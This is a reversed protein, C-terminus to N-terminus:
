DSQEVASTQVQPYAATVPHVHDSTEVLAGNNQNVKKRKLFPQEVYRWSLIALLCTGPLALLFLTLPTLSHQFWMMLLQQMPFAYLYVGYSLFGSIVFFGDVAVAGAELQHRTARYFPEWDKSGYFLPYSHSFIVLAALFFRLFDFNNRNSATPSDQGTLM